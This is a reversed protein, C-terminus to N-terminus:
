GAGLGPSQNLNCDVGQAEHRIFVYFLLDDPVKSRGYSGAIHGAAESQGYECNPPPSDSERGGFSAAAPGALAGMAVVAVIGTTIRKM